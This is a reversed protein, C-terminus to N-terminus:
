TERVVKQPDKDDRLAVFKTHRLHDAGTWELFDFRGVAEPRLWVCEKMKAATLGQGWRGAGTEPLNVFPCREIKLDKIQAFVERRTAPVFGARVRAAYILEKGRYFGIILADFGQTGKTYGGIVFEQGLNIRHKAWLGTRKGPQYVGDTRKAVLGELGHERVFTLMAKSDNQVVSLGIHDNVTLIKELIARREALPLHTLDKGKSILIDFAYYHIRCEASRFNQLLNFDTRGEDDLAVLEGDIVTNAPLWKLAQAIYSFKQNLVNGRRSFLTTESGDKVVELRFGDLKIEYTWEPGEPLSPVALCEMSEIFGIHSPAQRKVAASM